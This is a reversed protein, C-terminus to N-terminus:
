FPIDDDPINGGPDPDPTGTDEVKGVKIGPIYTDLYIKAMDEVKGVDKTAHSANLVAMGVAAGNLANYEKQLRYNIDIVQLAIKVFDKHVTKPYKLIVNACNFGNGEIMGKPDFDSKPTEGGTTEGGKREGFCYVKLPRDALVLAKISKRDINIYGKANKEYWFFVKSGDWVDVYNDGKKISFSLDYGENFKHHGVTIWQAHLSPIKFAITHTKDKNFQEGQYQGSPVVQDRVEPKIPFIGIKEIIGTYQEDYDVAM